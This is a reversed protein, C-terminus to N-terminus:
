SALGSITRSDWFFDLLSLRVASHSRSMSYNVRGEMNGPSGLPCQEWANNPSLLNRAFSSIRWKIMHILQNSQEKPSKLRDNRINSLVWLVRRGERKNDRRRRWNLSSLFEMSCLFNHYFIDFLCFVHNFNFWIHCTIVQCYKRSRNTFEMLTKLFSHVKLVVVCSLYESFCHINLALKCIVATM